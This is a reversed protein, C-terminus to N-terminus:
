VSIYRTNLLPIISVKKLNRDWKRPAEPNLFIISHLLSELLNRNMRYITSCIFECTGLMGAIHLLILACM